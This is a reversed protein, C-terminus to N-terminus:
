RVCEQRKVQPTRLESKEENYENKNKIHTFLHLSGTKGTKNEKKKGKMKGTLQREAM